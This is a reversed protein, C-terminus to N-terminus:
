LVHGILYWLLLLAVVLPVYNILTGTSICIAAFGFYEIGYFIVCLLFTTLVAKSLQKGISSAFFFTYLAAILPNVSALVVALIVKLVGLLMMILLCGLLIMPAYTVLVDPLFTEFGLTIFYHLVMALAVSILRWLYWGVIRKGKPIFTDLLNMLFALIVMSLVEACIAPFPMGWFRLIFIDDSFGSFPLPTIYQILDGPKFAYIVITVIYIFLIGMVSSLAHNLSSRKGLAVRGFLGILLAGITLIGVFKLVSLIDLDAPVYATLTALIFEM